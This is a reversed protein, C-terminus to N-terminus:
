PGLRKISATFVEESKGGGYIDAHDYFNIGAEWSTRLLMDVADPAMGAIRM